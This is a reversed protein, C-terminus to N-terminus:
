KAVHPADDRQADRKGSRFLITLGNVHKVFTIAFCHDIDDPRQTLPLCAIQTM